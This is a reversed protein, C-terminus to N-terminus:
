QRCCLAASIFPTVRPDLYLFHIRIHAFTHTPTTVRHCLCIWPRYFINQAKHNQSIYHLSTVKQDQKLHSYIQIIRLSHGELNNKITMLYKRVRVFPAKYLSLDLVDLVCWMLHIQRIAVGFLGFCFLKKGPNSNMKKRLTMYGCHTTAKVLTCVCVCRAAPSKLLWVISKM